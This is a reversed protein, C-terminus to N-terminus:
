SSGRGHHDVDETHWPLPRHLLRRRSPHLYPPRIGTWGPGSDPVPRHGALCSAPCPRGLTGDPHLHAASWEDLDPAPEVQWCTVTGEGRARSKGIAHIQGLLDSIAQAEGVARWTLSPTTTVLQPMAYRRWRGRDDDVHRPLEAVLREIMDHDPFSFWSRVELDRGEEAGEELAGPWACTAAWHWDPGQGCRALPLALDAVDELELVPTHIGGAEELEAKAKAHVQAALLGDLAIGWPASFVVGAQLHATIQLPEM